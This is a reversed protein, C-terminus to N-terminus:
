GGGASAVDMELSWLTRGEADKWEITGNATRGLVCAAAASPSKFLVDRQFRLRPGDAALAGQQVLQERLRFYSTPQFSPVPELRGTSGELVVFGENTYLGRADAEPGTCLYVRGAGEGASGTASTGDSLAARPALPEFIPHGLTSMLIVVAEHIEVCDSLLPAPTHPRGGANGNDLLYRGASRAQQISLWELYAAHTTTLTNTLSVAVLARNWFDKTRQHESLRQKLQGTQGIYAKAAGGEEDEGLLVYVGVQEAEPMRLFDSLLVRPIEIVRVIRTTIEAIRIGQPDGSPLFIQITKPRANM